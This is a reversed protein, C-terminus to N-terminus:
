PKGSRTWASRALTWRRGTSARSTSTAARAPASRTALRCGSASASSTRPLRARGGSTGCTSSGSSPMRSGATSGFSSWDSSRPGPSAAGSPTAPPIPLELHMGIDVIVRAARLSQGDLMGLREGPDGLYGLDDMLREAYLAWGEGHGSVWCMTRQWRNLLDRRYATQGVQLHHGPVGEHYVTTVERWTSFSDIGDPVAWWMRGPRTWDESPGTYYIGGDSTPALCCEIRRIPEPVDFHTGAMEDITRDALEQMWARFNEKGTIVRAPDADLAAVADAVTGGPVIADAVRGMEDEIRGLEDWGWAYAEDVDITAGLFSRSELAYVDRGVADRERGRPTMERRLFAAADAYAASALAANAVLEARLAAGTDARSVLRDFVNGTTGEAGIWGLVQEAAAALQRRASVHGADAAQALTARYQNLATPIAALRDSVAEWGQETSTDMLDFASRLNHLESGIVSVQSQPTMLAYQDLAVEAREVFADRAAQERRSSAKAVRMQQLSRRLLDERAQYGDLSLDPLASEHGAIGLVTAQLPDLAAQEAVYADAIEDVISGAAPGANEHDTTAQVPDSV